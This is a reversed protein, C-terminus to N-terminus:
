KQKRYGECDLSILREFVLNHIDEKKIPAKAVSKVTFFDFYADNFVYAIEGLPSSFGAIFTDDSIRKASSDYYSKWAYDSFNDLLIKFLIRKQRYLERMTHNGDSLDTTKIFNLDKLVLILENLANELRKNDADTLNIEESTKFPGISMEGQRIPLSLLRELVDDSTYGDYAPGIEIEKVEFLDYNDIKFHYTAMGKDTEIGVMFSDNFMSDERHKKTKWARDKYIHSLLRFIALRHSYLDGISYYKDEIKKASLLGSNKLAHILENLNNVSLNMFCRKIPYELRFDM